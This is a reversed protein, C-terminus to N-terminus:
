DMFGFVPSKSNGTLTSFQTILIESSTNIHIYRNETVISLATWESTALTPFYGTIDCPLFSMLYMLMQTFTHTHLRAPCTSYRRIIVFLKSKFEEHEARAVRLQKLWVQHVPDSLTTLDATFPQVLKIKDRLLLNCSTVTRLYLPLEEPHRAM